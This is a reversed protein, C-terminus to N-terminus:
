CVKKESKTKLYYAFWRKHVELYLFISVPFSLCSVMEMTMTVDTAEFGAFIFSQKENRSWLVDAILYRRHFSM